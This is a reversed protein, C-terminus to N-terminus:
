RTLRWLTWGLFGGLAGLWHSALAIPGGVAAEAGPVAGSWAEWGLKLALCGLVVLGFWRPGRRLLEPGGWAFLGHLIGSFGVYSGVDPSTVFLGASITLASALSAMLLERADLTDWLTALVLAVGLLNMRLHAPGLHVLHGTLVRWVEGQPIAARDWALAARLPDGGLAETLTMAAALAACGALSSLGRRREPM